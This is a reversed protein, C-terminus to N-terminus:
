GTRSPHPRRRPHAKPRRPHAKPRRPTKPRSPTRPRSRTKPSKTTKPPTKETRRPNRRPNRRRTRRTRRTCRSATARRPPARSAPGRSIGGRSTPRRGYLAHDGGGVAAVAGDRLRRVIGLARVERRVAGRLLRLQAVRKAELRAENVATARRLTPCVSNTTPPASDSPAHSASFPAAIAHDSPVDPPGRRRRREVRGARRLEFEDDLFGVARVRPGVPLVVDGVGEVGERVPEDDHVPPPREHLGRAHVEDVRRLLRRRRRHLHHLRIDFFKM